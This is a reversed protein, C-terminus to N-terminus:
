PLLSLLPLKVYLVAPCRAATAAILSFIKAAMLLLSSNCSSHNLFLWVRAVQRRVSPRYSPEWYSTLACM